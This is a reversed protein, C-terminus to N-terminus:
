RGGEEDEVVRRGETVCSSNNGSQHLAGGKGRAEFTKGSMDQTIESARSWEAMWYCNYRM